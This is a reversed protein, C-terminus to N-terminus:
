RKKSKMVFWSYRTFTKCREWNDILGKKSKIVDQGLITLTLKLDGM